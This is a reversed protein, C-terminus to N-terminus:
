VRNNVQSQPLIKFEEFASEFLFWENIVETGTNENRAPATKEVTDIMERLFNEFHGSVYRVCLGRRSQSGRHFVRLKRGRDTQDFVRLRHL